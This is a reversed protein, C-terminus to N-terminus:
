TDERGNGQLARALCLNPPESQSSAVSGRPASSVAGAGEGLVGLLLVKLKCSYKNQACAVSVTSSWYGPDPQRPLAHRYGSCVPPQSLDALKLGAQAVSHCGRLIPLPHYYNPTPTACYALV